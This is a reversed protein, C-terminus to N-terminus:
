KGLHVWKGPIVAAHPAVPMLVADVMKGDTGTSDWYDAYAEKYGRIQLALDQYELVSMPERLKYAEKLDDLIPENSLSLQKHIDHHGDAYM